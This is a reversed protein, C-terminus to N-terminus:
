GTPVSNGVQNHTGLPRVSSHGKGEFEKAPHRFRFPTIRKKILESEELVAIMRRDHADVVIAREEKTHAPLLVLKGKQNGLIQRPRHKLDYPHTRRRDRFSDDVRSLEEGAEGIKRRLNRRYNM